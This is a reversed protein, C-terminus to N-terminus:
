EVTREEVLFTSSRNFLSGSIGPMMRSMVELILEACSRYNEVFDEVRNLFRQECINVAKATIRATSFEQKKGCFESCGNKAMRPVNQRKEM